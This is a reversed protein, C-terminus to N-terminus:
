QESQASLLQEIMSLMTSRVLAQDKASLKSFKEFLENGLAAPKEEKQPVDSIGLLWDPSVKLAQSISFLVPLKPRTIGGVEYRQITSRAVGVQSAIDELTLGLQERRQKIRFGIEVTSLM